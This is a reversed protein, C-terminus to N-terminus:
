NTDVVSFKMSVIDALGCEISQSGYVPGSGAPTGTLIVDGSELTFYTSVYSIIEPISFIMDSTRSDQKMVDDVKLWLGVDSYDPIRDKEIFESVPCSTDFGKCLFWPRSKEKAENHFDKATMDLALLFGGIYNDADSPSIKTCKKSIVVGLEVEHYLLKCRIPIKINQGQSIYASTPKMFLVPKEPNPIGQAATLGRYNRCVAIIKKGNEKFNKYTESM